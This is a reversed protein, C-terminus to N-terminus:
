YKSAHRADRAITRSTATLYATNLASIIDSLDAIADAQANRDGYVTDGSRIDSRHDSLIDLVLDVQPKTLVVTVDSM